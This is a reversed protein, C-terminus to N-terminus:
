LRSLIGSRYAKLYDMCYEDSGLLARTAHLTALIYPSTADLIASDMGSAMALTLFQANIAKRNPLGFSINSLGSTLHVQPHAAHVAAVAGCFAESAQGCTALATVACDIYLREPAIGANTALRILEDAIRAKGKAEAPIGTTDCTLMILQWDGAAVVPLLAECKGPELSASNL